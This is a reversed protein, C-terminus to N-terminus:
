RYIGRNKYYKSALAKDIINEVRYINDLFEETVEYTKM